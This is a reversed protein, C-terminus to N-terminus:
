VSLDRRVTIIIEQTPLIVTIDRSKDISSITTINPFHKRKTLLPEKPEKM